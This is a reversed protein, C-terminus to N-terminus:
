NRGYFCEGLNIITLVKPHLPNLNYELKDGPETIDDESLLGETGIQDTSKTYLDKTSLNLNSQVSM